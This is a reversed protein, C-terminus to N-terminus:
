PNALRMELYKNKFGVREYLRLAPNDHEVHLKIDGDCHQRVFAILKGGIGQGRLVPDVYIMLLLWPPIYGLMGTKMMLVGGLMEEGAVALALFGGYKDKDINLGYDLARDVDELSDNFPKMKHHFAQILDDKTLWPPLDELREVKILDIKDPAKRTQPPDGM